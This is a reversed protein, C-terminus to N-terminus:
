LINYKKFKCLLGARLKLQDKKINKININNYCSFVGENQSNKHYNHQM